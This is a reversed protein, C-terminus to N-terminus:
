KSLGLDVKLQSWSVAGPPREGTRRRSEAAQIIARYRDPGTAATVWAVRRWAELIDLVETLDLDRTAKAMVEHWQRDFEVADETTLAARVQAPSADAFPPQQGPDSPSAAAATMRDRYDATTVDRGLNTTDTSPSEWAAPAAV